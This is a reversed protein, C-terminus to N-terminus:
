FYLDLHVITKLATQPSICKKQDKFLKGASQLARFELNKNEAQDCKTSHGGRDPDANKAPIRNGAGRTFILCFRM